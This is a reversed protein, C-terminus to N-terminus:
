IWDNRRQVLVSARAALISPILPGSLAAEFNWATSDDMLCGAM